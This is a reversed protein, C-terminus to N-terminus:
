LCAEALKLFARARHSLGRGRPPLGHKEEATMEGFTRTTGTPCSCRITASARRRRAAALGAHRRGDGRIGRCPRRALRRVARLRFARAASRPRLRAASACCPTSRRWRARRFGQGARGLAGSHIGPAGGLADVALGSDDAFAPLGRRRDGGSRRSARMRPSLRAPRRRSPCASSAPRCRRSATPRWCNACRACSAPNHTAIVLKGAIRRHARM